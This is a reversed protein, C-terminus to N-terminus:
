LVTPRERDKRQREHALKRTRANEPVASLFLERTAADPLDEARLSMCQSAQRLAQDGAATDGQAFCAEALALWTRVAATGMGGMRELMQVCAEAEARAEPFRGQSRLAASLLTRAVLQFHLLV